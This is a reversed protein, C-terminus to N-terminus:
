DGKELVIVSREGGSDAYYSVRRVALGGHTGTVSDKVTATSGLLQTHCGLCRLELTYSRRSSNKLMKDATVLTTHDAAANVYRVRDVRAAEPDPNRVVASYANTQRFKLRVESLLRHRCRSERMAYYVVGSEADSFMVAGGRPAGRFYARGDGTICLDAGYRSNCFRSLVQWHSMGKEITLKGYYPANDGDALTIGYPALHRREMLADSPNSYVVPEAENDLLAAALSRANLKLVAGGHRKLTTINDLRGRFLLKDGAMARLEQASDRLAADFPCAVTLSDAPVNLDCDLAVTLVNDLTTERGDQDVTRISLM